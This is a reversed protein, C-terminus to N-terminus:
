VDQEHEKWVLGDDVFLVNFCEKGMEKLESM